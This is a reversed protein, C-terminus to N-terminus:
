RIKRIPNGVYVGSDLIDRTVVSGAGIICDSTIKKYQVVITGAGIFSNRSIIVGGCLTVAPAIHVFDDIQCDHDISSRTNLISFEGISSGSNIVVGDMVVTGKKIKVAENVVSTPSTIQPFQFGIKKLNKVVKQRLNSKNAHGIGIVANKVNKEKFLYELIDDTGLYKVELIKGRDVIDTYGAIDYIDQKRLISIIVKAHGGGGIVVIKNM